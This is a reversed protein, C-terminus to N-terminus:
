AGSAPVQKHLRVDIKCVIVLGKPADASQTVTHTGLGNLDIRSSRDMHIAM